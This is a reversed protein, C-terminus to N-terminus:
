YFLRGGAERTKIEPRIWKKKVMVGRLLMKGDWSTSM